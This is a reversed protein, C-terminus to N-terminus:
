DKKNIFAFREMKARHQPCSPSTLKDRGVPGFLSIRIKRIKAVGPHSMTPDSELNEFVAEFAEGLFMFRNPERIIRGSRHPVPASNPLTM